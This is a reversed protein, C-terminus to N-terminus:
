GCAVCGCDLAPSDVATLATIPVILYVIHAQSTPLVLLFLSRRLAWWTEALNARSPKAQPNSFLEQSEAGMGGIMLVVM